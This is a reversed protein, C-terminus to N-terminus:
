WADFVISGGVLNATQCCMMKRKYALVTHFLLPWRCMGLTFLYWPAFHRSIAYFPEFLHMVWLYIKYHWAGKKAYVGKKIRVGEVGISADWCEFGEGQLAERLLGLREASMDSFWTPWISCRTLGEGGRIPGIDLTWHGIHLTWHGIDLTWHGM